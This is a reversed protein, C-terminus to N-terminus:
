FYVRRKETAAKVLRPLHVEPDQGGRTIVSNRNDVQKLVLTDVPRWIDKALFAIISLTAKRLENIMFSITIDGSLM